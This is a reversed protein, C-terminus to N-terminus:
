ALNFSMLEASLLYDTFIDCIKNTKFLPQYNFDIAALM